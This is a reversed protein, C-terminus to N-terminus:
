ADFGSPLVTETVYRGTEVERVIVEYGESRWEKLQAVGVYTATAVDYLRAQAYRNILRRPRPKRPLPPGPGLSRAAQRRNWSPPTGRPPM